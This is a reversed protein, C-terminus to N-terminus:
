SHHLPRFLKKVPHVPNRKIKEGEPESREKGRTPRLPWFGKSLISLIPCSKKEKRSVGKREVLGVFASFVEKVSHAPNITIKMKLGASEKGPNPFLSMPRRRCFEM